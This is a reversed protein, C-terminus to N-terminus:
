QDVSGPHDTASAAADEIIAGLPKRVCELCVIVDTDVRLRSAMDEDHGMAAALVPNGMMTELGHARQVAPLNVVFQEIKLRYFTVSQCAMVGRGCCLCPRLDTRKMGVTREAGIERM